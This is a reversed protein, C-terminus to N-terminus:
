SKHDPWFTKMYEDYYKPHVLNGEPDPKYGETSLYKRGYQDWFTGDEREFVEPPGHPQETVIPDDKPKAAPLSKGCKHCFKSDKVLPVGCETCFGDTPASAKIEPLAQKPEPRKPVQQRSTKLWVWIRYAVWVNAALWILFVFSIVSSPVDRLDPKVKAFLLLQPVGLVLVIALVPLDKIPVFGSWLPWASPVVPSSSLM